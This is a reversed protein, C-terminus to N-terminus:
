VWTSSGKQMSNQPWCTISKAASTAPADSVSLATTTPRNLDVELHVWTSRPQGRKTEAILALLHCRVDFHM